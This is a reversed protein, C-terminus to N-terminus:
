NQIFNLWVKKAIEFPMSDLVGHSLMFDFFNNPYPLERIDSTIVNKCLYGLNRKKLNEHAEKIATESLDFGYPTIDFDNLLVVHRGIGCGFDLVKPNEYYEKKDIFEKFGIQKRIYKSIFRIIEEHPYFIYNDKKKYSQEWEEKKTEM